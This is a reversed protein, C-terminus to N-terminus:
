DRSLSAKTREFWSEEEAMEEEVQSIIEEMVKSRIEEPSPGPTPKERDLDIWAEESAEVWRHWVTRWAYDGELERIHYLEPHAYALTELDVWSWAEILNERMEEALNGWRADTLAGFVEDPTEAERLSWIVEKWRVELLSEWAAQQLAEVEEGAARLEEGRKLQDLHAERLNDASQRAAEMLRGIAADADRERWARAMYGLGMGLGLALILDIIM